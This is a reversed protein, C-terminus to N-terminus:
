ERTYWECVCAIFGDSALTGSACVLLSGMVRSFDSAHACAHVFLNSTLPVTFTVPSIYISAIIGESGLSMIICAM